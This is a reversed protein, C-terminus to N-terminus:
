ELKLIELTNGAIRFGFDPEIEPYAVGAATIDAHNLFHFGPVGVPSLIIVLKDSFRAGSKGQLLENGYAMKYTKGLKLDAGKAGIADGLKKLTVVFVKAGGCTIEVKSSPIDSLVAHLKVTLEDGGINLARSGSMFMANVIDNARIFHTEKGSVYLLLFFREKDACSQGGDPCNAATYASFKVETGHPTRFSLGSDKHANLLANLKFSYAVPGLRGPPIATASKDGDGRLPKYKPADIISGLYKFFKDMKAAQAGNADAAPSPAPVAASGAKLPDLSSSKAAESELGAATLVGCSFASFVALALIRYTFKM